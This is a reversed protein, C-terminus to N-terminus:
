QAEVTITGTMGQSLHPECYYPFEGETEFTHRFTEGTTDMEQREWESHDDPTITHFINADNVWEVTTGPEITLNAPSFTFNSTLHVEEVNATEDAELAYAVSGGQDGVTVSQRASGELTYGAPVDIEVEYTGAEVDTFRAEGSSNTTTQELATSGGEAYLSVSVASLPGDEAEVTVVIDATSPETGDSGCSGALGVVGLAAVWALM